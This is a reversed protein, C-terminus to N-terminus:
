PAKHNDYSYYVGKDCTIYFTDRLPCKVGGLVFDLWKQYNETYSM